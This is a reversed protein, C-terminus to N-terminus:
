KNCCNKNKNLNNDDDVLINSLIISNTKYLPTYINNQIDGGIDTNDLINKILTNFMDNIGDGNLASTEIFMFNNNNAYNQGEDYSVERNPLDCKNGVLLIATRSDINQELEIIWREINNFSDKSTVDYVVIVGISGKYYARTISRFREQGATDWIQIKVNINNVILTKTCFEVGITSKSEHFFENNVYKSLINSKGVGSDGILILKYLRDYNDNM